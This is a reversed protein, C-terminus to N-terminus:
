SPQPQRQQDPAPKLLRRKQPVWQESQVLLLLPRHGCAPKNNRIGTDSDGDDGSSTADRSDRKGTTTIACLRATIKRV